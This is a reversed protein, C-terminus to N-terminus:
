GAMLPLTIIFDSGKGHVSRVAIYGDHQKSIEQAIALGLGTGEIDKHSDSNVRYFKEFLHPMDREPIGLGTDEIHTQMQQDSAEMWVRVQGGDPTYKIANSLLNSLVQRMRAPSIFLQMTAPPAEYILKINKKQALLQFTDVEEAVLPPWDHLDKEFAIGSAVQALDLLDHVLDKMSSASKQIAGIYRVLEPHDKVEPYDLLMESYGLIIGLPNKLDHSAMRMMDEKTQSLREYYSRERRLFKEIERWQKFLMLQAEVRALVEELQFPKTIYDVGGVRFAKVKDETSDLASLFIVPIDQTMEDDKLRQCVEYGDMGPMQIDLLILQPPTKRATQLAIEGNIAPRVRYGRETLMTTLLKLNQPTDDVILIDSNYL